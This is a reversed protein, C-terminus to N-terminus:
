PLIRWTSLRSVRAHSVVKTQRQFIGGWLSGIPAM